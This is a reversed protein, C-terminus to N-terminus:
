EAESALLPLAASRVALVTLALEGPASLLLGPRLTAGGVGCHGGEVAPLADLTPGPAPPSGRGREVGM